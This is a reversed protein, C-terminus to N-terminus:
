RRSGMSPELPTGRRLFPFCGTRRLCTTASTSPSSSRTRAPVPPGRTLDGTLVLRISGNGVDAAKQRIWGDIDSRPALTIGLAAASSELRDLHAEVRFPVRDYSRLAEFCGYGRLLAIDFVSLAAEAPDLHAGDVIVNGIISRM